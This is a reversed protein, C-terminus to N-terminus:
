RRICCRRRLRPAADVKMRCMTVLESRRTQPTTSESRPNALGSAFGSETKSTERFLIKTEERWTCLTCGDGRVSHERLSSYAARVLSEHVSNKTCPNPPEKSRNPDSGYTHYSIRIWMETNEQEGEMFLFFHSKSPRPWRGM